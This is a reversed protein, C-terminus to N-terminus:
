FIFRTNIFKSKHEVGGLAEDGEAGGMVPCSGIELQRLTGDAQRVCVPSLVTKRKGSWARLEGDVLWTTQHIPAALRQEPPIEDAKPFLQCLSESTIM